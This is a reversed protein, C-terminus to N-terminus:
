CFVKFFVKFPIKTATPLLGFVFSHRYLVIQERQPLWCLRWKDGRWQRRWLLKRSCLTSMTDTKLQRFILPLLFRYTSELYFGDVTLAKIFPQPVSFFTLRPWLGLHTAQHGRTWASFLSWQIVINKFVKGDPNGAVLQTTQPLWQTSPLSVSLTHTHTPHPNEQSEQDVKWLSCGNHPPSNLLVAELVRLVLQDGM